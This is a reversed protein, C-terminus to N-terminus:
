LSNESGLKNEVSPMYNSEKEKIKRVMSEQKHAASGSRILGREEKRKM